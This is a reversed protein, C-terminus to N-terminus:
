KKYYIIVQDKSRRDDKSYISESYSDVFLSHFLDTTFVNQREKKIRFPNYEKQNYFYNYIYGVQMIGNNNLFDALVMIIKKYRNLYDRDYMKTLYDSINSLFIFDFKKGNIRNNLENIDCEIFEEDKDRLIDALKYYNGEGLYENFNVLNTKRNKFEYYLAHNIYNYKHREYLFDYFSKTEDDLKASIRDYLYYDLYEYNYYYVKCIDLKHWTPTPM